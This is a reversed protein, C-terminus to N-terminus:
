SSMQVIAKRFVPVAALVDRASPMAFWIVDNDQPSPAPRSFSKLDDFKLIWSRDGEADVIQVTPHTTDSARFAPLEQIVSDGGHVLMVDVDEFADESARFRDLELANIVYATSNVPDQICVRM